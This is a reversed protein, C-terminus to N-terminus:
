RVSVEAACLECLRSGIDALAVVESAGGLRIAAEPMAAREATGPDQALGHGGRQRVRALGRAGDANSGTLVVGVVRPGHTAAASEFLVDISPRRYTERDDISLAFTDREVLLHYDAPALHVAGARIPDKDETDCVELATHAALVKALGPGPFTPSRHQAIAIAAPFGAPLAELVAGVAQLGGWSAGMVVLDRPM